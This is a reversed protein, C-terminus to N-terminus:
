TAIAGHGNRAIALVACRRVERRNPEMLAEVLSGLGRIQQPQTRM